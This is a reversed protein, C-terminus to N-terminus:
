THVQRADSGDGSATWVEYSGSANSVYVLKDHGAYYDPDRVSFDTGRQVAHSVFANLDLREIGYLGNNESYYVFEPTRGGTSSGLLHPALKNGRAADLDPCAIAPDKAIQWNHTLAGDVYASAAATGSAPQERADVSLAFHYWKRKNIGSAITTHTVAEYRGPAFVINLTGDNQQELYLAFHVSETGDMQSYLLQPKSADENATYGEGYFWFSLTFSQEHPKAPLTPTPMKSPALPLRLHEQNGDLYIGTGVVGPISQGGVVLGRQLIDLRTLEQPDPDAGAISCTPYVACIEAATPVDAYAIPKQQNNFDYHLLLRDGYGPPVDALSIPSGWLTDDALLCNAGPNTACPGVESYPHEPTMSHQQDYDNDSFLLETSGLHRRLFYLEIIAGQPIPSLSGSDLVVLRLDGSVTTTTYLNKGANELAALRRTDVLQLDSAQYAIRLDLVTAPYPSYDYYVHVVLEQANQDVVELHFATCSSGCDRAECLNAAIGAHHECHYLFSSCDRDGDCSADASSDSTGIIAEVWSYLGDSDADACDPDAPTAACDIYGPSTPCQLPPLVVENTPPDGYCFGPV